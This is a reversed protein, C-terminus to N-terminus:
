DADATSLAFSGRAIFTVQATRPITPPADDVVVVHTNVPTGSKAQLLHELQSPSADALYRVPDGKKGLVALAGADGSMDFILFDSIGVAYQREALAIIGDLGDEPRRRVYVISTGEPAM